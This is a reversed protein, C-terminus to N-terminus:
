SGGIYVEIETEFVIHQESKDVSADITSPYSYGNTELATKITGQLTTTDTTSLAFLHVQITYKEYLPSDDAFHDPNTIYNFTIYTAATGTYQSQVVPLNTTSLASILDSAVSM